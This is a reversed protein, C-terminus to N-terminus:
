FVWIFGFVEFQFCLPSGQHSLPLYDVQWHLLSPNLGQHLFVGCVMSCSHGRAVDVSGTSQLWLQQAWAGSLGHEAVLSAVAILLERVAVLSYGRSVESCSSFLRSLLSSEACGFIIIKQFSSNAIIMASTLLSTLLIHSLISLFRSYIPLLPFPLSTQTLCITWFSVDWVQYLIPSSTM